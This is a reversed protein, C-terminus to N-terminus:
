VKRFAYGLPFNFLLSLLADGQKQGNQISFHHYFYKGTCLKSYM